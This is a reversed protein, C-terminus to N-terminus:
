SGFSELWSVAGNDLCNDSSFGIIYDSVAFSFDEIELRGQKEVLLEVFERINDDSFAAPADEWPPAALVVSYSYSERFDHKDVATYSVYLTLKQCQFTVANNGEGIFADYVSGPVEYEGLPCAILYVPEKEKERIVDRVKIKVQQVNSETHYAIKEESIFRPSLQFQTSMTISFAWGLAVFVIAGRMWVSLQTHRLLFRHLLFVALFCLFPIVISLM